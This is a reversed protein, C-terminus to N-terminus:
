PLGLPFGPMASWLEESSEEAEGSDQLEGLPLDRSLRQAAELNYKARWFGPDQILASRYLDKAVDALATARDVGMREALKVAERLYLNGMNYYVIKLKDPQSIREAKGYADVADEFLGRQHLYYAYAFQVTPLTLDISDPEVLTMTQLQKLTTNVTKAESWAGFNFVFLGLWILLLLSFVIKIYFRRVIM